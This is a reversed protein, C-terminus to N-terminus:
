LAPRLPWQSSDPFASSAISSPDANSLCTTSFITILLHWCPDSSSQRPSDFTATVFHWRVAERAFPDDRRLLRANADALRDEALAATFADCHQVFRGNRVTPFHPPRLRAQTPM